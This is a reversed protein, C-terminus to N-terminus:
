ALHYSERLVNHLYLYLNLNLGRSRPWCPTGHGSNKKAISTIVASRVGSAQSIAELLVEATILHEDIDIFMRGPSSKTWRM